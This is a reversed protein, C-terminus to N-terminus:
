PLMELPNEMESLSPKKPPPDGERAIRMGFSKRDPGFGIALLDKV